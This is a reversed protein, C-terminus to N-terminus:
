SCNLDGEKIRTLRLEELKKNMEDLILKNERQTSIEKVSNQKGKLKYLLFFVGYVLITLPLIWAFLHLGKKPPERLIWPGYRETFFNLVQTQNKQKNIEEIVKRRIQLSFLADSELVSLGTCTPCRLQSSIDKYLSQQKEPLSKIKKELSFISDECYLNQHFSITYTFCFLKILYSKINM